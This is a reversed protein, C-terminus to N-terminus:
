EESIGSEPLLARYEDDSLAFGHMFAHSAVAYPLLGIDEKLPKNYSFVSAKSDEFKVEGVKRWRNNKFAKLEVINRYVKRPKYDSHLQLTQLILVTIMKM